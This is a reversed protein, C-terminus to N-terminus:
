KGEGFFYKLQISYNFNQMTNAEKNKIFIHGLIQQMSQWKLMRMEVELGEESPYRTEIYYSNLFSVENVFEKFNEDKIVNQTFGYIIDGYYVQKM